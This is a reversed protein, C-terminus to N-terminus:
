CRSRSVPRSTRKRFVGPVPTPATRNWALPSESNDLSPLVKCRQCAGTTPRSRRRGSPGPWRWSPAATGIPFRTSGASDAFTASSTNSHSLVKASGSSDAAPSRRRKGFVTLGRFPSGTSVRPPDSASGRRADPCHKRPTRRHKLLRTPDELRQLAVHSRHVSHGM